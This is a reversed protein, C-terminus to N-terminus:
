NCCTLYQCEFERRQGETSGLQRACTQRWSVCCGATQWQASALSGCVFAVGTFVNNQHQSLVGNHKQLPLTEMKIQACLPQNKAFHECNKICFKTGTHELISPTLPEAGFGVPPAWSAGGSERTLNPEFVYKKGQSAFWGGRPWFNRLGGEHGVM